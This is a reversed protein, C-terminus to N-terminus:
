YYFRFSNNLRASSQPLGDSAKEIAQKPNSGYNKVEVVLLKEPTGDTKFSM